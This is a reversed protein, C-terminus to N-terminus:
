KGIWEMLIKEHNETKVDDAPEVAPTVVLGSDLMSFMSTMWTTREIRMQLCTLRLDRDAPANLRRILLILWSPLWSLLLM